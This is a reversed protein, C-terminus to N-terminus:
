ADSREGCGDVRALETDLDHATIEGAVLRALLKRREEWSPRVREPVRSYRQLLEASERAKRQNRMQTTARERIEAPAPPWPEHQLWWSLANEGYPSWPIDALAISWVEIVLDLNREAAKMKPGYAADILLIAQTVEDSTM